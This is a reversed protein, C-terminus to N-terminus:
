AVRGNMRRAFGRAEDRTAMVRVVRLTADLVPWGESTKAAAKLPLVSRQDRRRAHVRRRELRRVRQRRSMLRAARRVALRGGRGLGTCRCDGPAEFSVCLHPGVLPGRFGCHVGDVADWVTVLWGASRLGAVAAFARRYREDSAAALIRDAAETLARTAGDGARRPGASMVTQQM